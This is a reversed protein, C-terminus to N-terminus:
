EAVKKFKGTELLQFQPRGDDDKCVYDPTLNCGYNWQDTVKGDKIALFAGPFGDREENIIREIDDVRVLQVSRFPPFVLFTPHLGNKFPNAYEPSYESRGTFYDHSGVLRALEDRDNKRAVYPFYVPACKDTTQPVGKVRLIHRACLAYYSDSNFPLQTLKYLV